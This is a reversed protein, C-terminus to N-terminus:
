QLVFRIPIEVVVRVPDGRRDRAPRFRWQRVAAIADADLMPISRLVKVAPEVRGDRDLIAELLVLGEVERRRAPEPYEPSVRRVLAPPEAVQGIGVPGEGTRGVVGGPTGDTTGGVIGGTLGAAVGNAVGPALRAAERQAPVESTDARESTRRALTEAPAARPKRRVEPLPRAERVAELQPRPLEAVPRAPPAPPGVLWGQGAPAGLPPAPPPPLDVFVVRVPAVPVPEGAPALALVGALALHVALAIACALGWARTALPSPLRLPSAGSGGHRDWGLPAVSM